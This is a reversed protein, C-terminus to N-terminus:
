FELLLGLAYSQGGLDVKNGGVDNIKATTKAFEFFLYTNDIGFDRRLAYAAGFDIRDLLLQIGAKYYIGDTNGKTETGGTVNQKYSMRTIGGGVYPVILQNDSFVGRLIIYASAPVLTYDVEGGVQNNLPLFGRGDQSMYSAELGVELQRLVKYALAVSYQTMNDESYFKDWDDLEPHFQGLKFEASWYSREEGALTKTFPLGFLIIGAFVFLLLSHRCSLSFRQRIQAVPRNM